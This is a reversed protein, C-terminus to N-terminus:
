QAGGKIATIMKRTLRSIEIEFEAKSKELTVVYDFEAQKIAGEIKQITQVTVRGRQKIDQEALVIMERSKDLAKAEAAYLRGSIVELAEMTRSVKASWEATSPRLLPTTSKVELVSEM